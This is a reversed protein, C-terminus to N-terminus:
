VMRGIWASLREELQAIFPVVHATQMHMCPPKHQHIHTHSHSRTLTWAKTGSTAAWFVGPMFLFHLSCVNVRMHLSGERSLPSYKYLKPTVKSSKISNIPWISTIFTSFAWSYHDSCTQTWLFTSNVEVATKPSWILSLSCTKKINEQVCKRTNKSIKLRNKKKGSTPLPSASHVCCQCIMVQYISTTLLCGGLCVASSDCLCPLM